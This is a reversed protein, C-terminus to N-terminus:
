ISGLCQFDGDDFDDHAFEAVSKILAKQTDGDDDYVDREDVNKFSWNHTGDEDEVYKAMVRSVDFEGYQKTAMNRSWRIADTGWKSQPTVAYIFKPQSDDGEGDGRLPIDPKRQARGILQFLAGHSMLTFVYYLKPLNWGEMLVSSAMILAGSNYRQLRALSKVRVDMPTQGYVSILPIDDPGYEPTKAVHEAWVESLMKKLKSKKFPQQRIAYVMIARKNELALRVFDRTFNIVAKDLTVDAVHKKESAVAVLRFPVNIIYGKEVLYPRTYNVLTREHMFGRESDEVDASKEDDEEDDSDFQRNRGLPNASMAVTASTRLLQLRHQRLATEAHQAEDYFVCLWHEKFLAYIVEHKQPSRPRDYALNSYAVIVVAPGFIKGDVITVQDVSGVLVPVQWKVDARTLGSASYKANLLDMITSQFEFAATDKDVVILVNNNDSASSTAYEMMAQLANAIIFTKGGGCAITASSTKRFKLSRDSSFFGIRSDLPNQQQHNEMRADDDSSSKQIIMALTALQHPRLVLDTNYRFKSGSTRNRSFASGDIDDFESMVFLHQTIYM